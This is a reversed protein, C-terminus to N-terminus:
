LKRARRRAALAALGSPVLLLTAPEPVAAPVADCGAVCQLSTVRGNLDVVLPQANADNLQFFLFPSDFQAIPPPTLPLADSSFVTHQFDELRISLSTFADFYGFLYQDSVAYNNVGISVSGFSLPVGVLTLTLSSGVYAGSENAPDAILDPATSDFTYEGNFTTGLPNGIFSQDYDGVSEVIGAYSFTIPAAQATTSSLTLLATVVFIAQRM